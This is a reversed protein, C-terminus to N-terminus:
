IGNKRFEIEYVVQGDDYDLKAKTFTAASASVGADALAKEKATEVSIMDDATNTQNTQPNQTQQQGTQTNQNQLAIFYTLLMVLILAMTFWFTIKFRISLRKM